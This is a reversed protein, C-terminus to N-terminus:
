RRVKFGYIKGSDTMALIIYFGAPMGSLDAFLTDSNKFYREQMRRGDIRYVRLLKGNEPLKLTIHGGGEYRLVPDPNILIKEYSAVRAREEDAIDSIFDEYFQFPIDESDDGLVDDLNYNRYRDSDYIEFEVASPMIIWSNKRDMLEIEEKSEDTLAQFEPTDYPTDLMQRFYEPINTWAAIARSPNRTDYRIIEIERAFRQFHNREEDTLAGKDFKRSRSYALVPFGKNEASIVIFGGRPSNYVYFPTFLRNTTLERGNWVLKPEPTVEEYMTNFFTSALQRAQKQSVTEAEASFFLNCIVVMVAITIIRTYTGLNNHRYNMYYYRAM